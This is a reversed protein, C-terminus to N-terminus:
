YLDLRQRVAEAANALAKDRNRDNDFFVLDVPRGRAAYVFSARVEAGTFGLGELREAPDETINAFGIRWRRPMQASAAGAASAAAAGLAVGLVSRRRLRM